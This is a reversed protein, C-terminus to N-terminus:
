DNIYHNALYLATEKRDSSTITIPEYSIRRLEKISERIIAKVASSNALVEVSLTVGKAAKKALQKQLPEIYRLYISETNESVMVINVSAHSLEDFEKAIMKGNAATTM